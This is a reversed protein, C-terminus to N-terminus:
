KCKLQAQLKQLPGDYDKLTKRREINKDLNVNSRGIMDNRARLARQLIEDVCVQDSNAELQDLYADPVDHILKKKYNGFGFRYHEVLAEKLGAHHELGGHIHELSKQYEFPVQILPQRLYPGFPLFFTPYPLRFDPDFSPQKLPRTQTDMSGNTTPGSYDGMNAFAVHHKILHNSDNHTSQKPALGPAKSAHANIQTSCAATAFFPHSPNYRHLAERLGRCKELIGNLRPSALITELYMRPVESFRKGYNTGWDFVYEDSERALNRPAPQLSPADSGYSGMAGLNYSRTVPYPVYEGPQVTYPPPVLPMGDERTRKLFDMAEQLTFMIYRKETKVSRKMPQVDHATPKAAAVAEKRTEQLNERDIKVRSTRSPAQFTPADTVAENNTAQLMERDSKNVRSTRVPIQFTPADPRPLAVNDHFWKAVAQPNATTPSPPAPRPSHRHRGGKRGGRGARGPESGREAQTDRTFHRPADTAPEPDQLTVDSMAELGLEDDNTLDVVEKRRKRRSTKSAPHEYDSDPETGPGMAPPDSASRARKSARTARGSQAPQHQSPTNDHAMPTSNPERSLLRGSRTRMARIAVKPLLSNTQALVHHQPLLHSPSKWYSGACPRWCVSSSLVGALRIRTHLLSDHHLKAKGEPRQM